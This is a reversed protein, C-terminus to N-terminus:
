GNRRAWEKILSRDGLSGVYSNWEDAHKGLMRALKAEVEEPPLGIAGSLLGAQRRLLPTNEPLALEALHEMHLVAAILYDRFAKNLKGFRPDVADALEAAGLDSAIYTDPPETQGAAHVSMRRLLCAACAGCQRFKGDISSWQSGKWCSTTCQWDASAPGLSIYNALTEAKTNWLRPFSFVIRVGLLAELFVSMRELFAPHNRYDPYTQGVPALVPGLAGQGSEPVVCENASCIYAALGSVLSFKFGRNRASTEANHIRRSFRYPLATFPQGRQPRGKKKSGLRVLVLGSKYTARVLGNVARSDMGDSYALTARVGPQLDLQQQRPLPERTYRQRFSIQWDDGTLFNLASALSVQVEPKEWHALDHVPISVVLNRGWTESPRKRFRDAFEIGGALVMADFVLPDFDAVAYSNLAEMSFKLDKGLRLPVADPISTTEGPALVEICTRHFSLNRAM